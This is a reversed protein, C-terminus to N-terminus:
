EEGGSLKQLLTNFDTYQKPESINPSSPYDLSLDTTIKVDDNDYQFYLRTFQYQDDIEVYLTPLKSINEILSDTNISSSDQGICNLLDKVMTLDKASEVFSTFNSKDLMIRRVPYAKNSIPINEASSTIFPNNKYLVLVNNTNNKLDNVFSTACNTIANESTSAITKSLDSSNIKIWNGDVTKLIEEISNITKLSDDVVTCDNEETGECDVVPDPEETLGGMYNLQKIANTAGDLKLYLDGGKAYVEDFDLPITRSPNQMNITIKANTSNVATGGVLQSNLDIKLSTYPSSKDKIAADITGNIAINQAYGNNIIKEIAAAVPDKPNNLLLLAAAVGCSVAIFVAIIGGIIMGRKKITKHSSKVETVVATPTANIVQPMTNIPQQSIAQQETNEAQPLAQPINDTLSSQTPNPNLPNPTGERNNDM